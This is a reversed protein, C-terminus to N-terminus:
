LLTWLEERMRWDNTAAKPYKSSQWSSGIQRCVLAVSVGILLHGTTMIGFLYIDERGRCFLTALCAVSRRRGLTRRTDLLLRKTVVLLNGRVWSRSRHCNRQRKILPDKWSAAMKTKLQEKWSAAMKTKLRDEWSLAMMKELLNKWSAAMMTELPDKWSAEIMLELMMTVGAVELKGSACAPMLRGCAAGENALFTALFTAVEHVSREILLQAWSGPM